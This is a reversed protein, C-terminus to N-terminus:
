LCNFLENTVTICGHQRQLLLNTLFVIMTRVQGTLLCSSFFLWIILHSWQLLWNDRDLRCHTQWHNLRQGESQLVYTSIFLDSNQMSEEECLFVGCRVCRQVFCCHCWWKIHYVKLNKNQAVGPTSHFSSLRFWNNLKSHQNFAM